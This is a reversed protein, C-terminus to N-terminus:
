EIATVDLVSACSKERELAELRTKSAALASTLEEIVAGAARKGLDVLGAQTLFGQRLRRVVGEDSPLKQGWTGDALLELARLPAHGALTPSLREVWLSSVSFRERQSDYSYEALLAGPDNAYTTMVERIVPLAYFRLFRAEDVSALFRLEEAWYLPQERLRAYVSEGSATDSTTRSIAVAAHYEAVSKHLFCFEGGEELVLNTIRIVDRLVLEAKVETEPMRDLAQRSLRLIEEYTWV